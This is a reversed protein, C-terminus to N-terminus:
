TINHLDEILVYGESYLIKRSREQIYLTLKRYNEFLLLDFKRREFKARYSINFIM